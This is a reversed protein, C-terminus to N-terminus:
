SADVEVPFELRVLTGRGQQSELQMRGGCRRVTSRVLFLGLGLGSSTGKTTFFPEEIRDRLEPAVGCGWDEVEVAVGAATRQLRFAVRGGPATAEVANTLLNEFCQQLLPQCLPLTPLGPAEALELSVERKRAPQGLTEFAARATEVADASEAEECTPGVASAVLRRMVLSMRDMAEEAMLAYEPLKDPPVKNAGLGRVFSHVSALPNNLEHVLGAALRGATAFREAELAQEHTARLQARAQNLAAALEVVESPGELPLPAEERTPLPRLNSVQLALARLARVALSQTLVVLLGLLSGFLGFMLDLRLLTAKMQEQERRESLALHVSGIAGDLIPVAAHCIRGQETCLEVVQLGSTRALPLLQEPFGGSFSHALPEGTPGVVFAYSIEEQRGTLESTVRELEGQNSTLAADTCSSAYARALAEARATVAKSLQRKLTSKQVGHVLPGFVLLPVLVGGLLM